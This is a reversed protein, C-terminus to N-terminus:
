ATNRSERILSACSAPSSFRSATASPSSRVPRTTVDAASSKQTATPANAVEDITITLSTPIPIARATAISAVSM